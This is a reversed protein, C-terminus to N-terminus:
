EHNETITILPKQLRYTCVNSYTAARHSLPIHISIKDVCVKDKTTICFRCVWSITSDYKPSTSTMRSGTLVWVPLVSTYPNFLHLSLITHKNCYTTYEVSSETTEVRTQNKMKIKRECAISLYQLKMNTSSAWGSRAHIIFAVICEKQSYSEVATILHLPWPVKTWGRFCSVRFLM